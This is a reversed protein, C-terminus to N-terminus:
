YCNQPLLLHLAFEYDLSCATPDFSRAFLIDSFSCLCFGSFLCHDFDCVLWYWLCFEFYYYALSLVNLAGRFFWFELSGSSQSDAMNDTDMDEQPWKLTLGMKITTRLTWTMMTCTSMPVPTLLRPQSRLPSRPHTLKLLRYLLHSVDAHLHPCSVFICIIVDVTLNAIIERSVLSSIHSVCVTRVHPRACMCMYM